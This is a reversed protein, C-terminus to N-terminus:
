NILVQYVEIEKIFFEKKGDNLEKYSGFSNGVTEGYNLTKNSIRIDANAGGYGFYPGENEGCYISGNDNLKYIKNLNLSFVFDKENKKYECSKDWNENTFGGFKKGENTEIITM